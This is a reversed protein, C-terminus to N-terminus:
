VSGRTVAETNNANGGKKTSFFVLIFHIIKEKKGKRWAPKNFLWLGYVQSKNKM